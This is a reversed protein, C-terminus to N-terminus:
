AIAKPASKVSRIWFEEPQDSEFATPYYTGYICDHFQEVAHTRSCPKDFTVNVIVKHTRSKAM